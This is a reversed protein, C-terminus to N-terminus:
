RRRGPRARPKGRDLDKEKEKAKERENLLNRYTPDKAAEDKVREWFQALKGPPKAPPAGPGGPGGRGNGGPGGNGGRGGGPPNKDESTGGPTTNAHTVKPLLLRECIQWTSSTIFYIGLGSPVKYFMFGMFVMMYKMMKQQMEAEPTTAPPAFLKTQVLMLSVVLFPLLNFYEGIYPLQTPFKFMMDPAALNEIYLFSAHRLHVSNNLAQWLGVFIPLQILAPLCGGVPNVGHRKYLAFTERTQREKDDKYKEQIEKLLPQLSQMRQASLAQKRGIPFMIMRVLLTLLIIAVGYNGATGGFRQAVWATFHYIKELLPAIVNMSMWAAGPIGFWQYKRYTALGEAGYPALVAAIKPGAFVRYTQEVSRNPGVPFPKSVVEVSIDAKPVADAKVDIVTAYTERDWRDADTKPAPYPELFTAFYQNEVGAFRLPLTTNDFRAAKVQAIDSAPRNVIKTSGGELQGFFADRFTGTYWEGEIPIGHPGFLRYAITREKEPSEFGLKLEFSDEGKWVRFTKTLTVGLEEATTRFVIEQGERPKKTVPDVESLPRVISGKENRVVEWLEEALPIESAEPSGILDKAADDQVAKPQGNTLSLALSPLSFPKLGVLQLPRGRERKGERDADYLASLVSAVGAGKQELIVQLHYGSKARASGIMLESETLLEIKKAPKEAEPKAEVKEKAAPADAKKAEDQAKGAEPKLDAKAQQKTKPPPPNLGLADMVYQIGLFSLFTLAMFLVLRKESSM